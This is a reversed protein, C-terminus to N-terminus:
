SNKDSMTTSMVAEFGNSTGTFTKMTQVQSSQLKGKGDYSELTSKSGQKSVYYAEACNQANSLNSVQILFFVPLIRLIKM